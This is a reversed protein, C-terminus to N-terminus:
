LAFYVADQKFNIRLEDEKWEAWRPKFLIQENMAIM